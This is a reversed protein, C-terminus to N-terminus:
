NFDWQLWGSCLQGSDEQNWLTGLRGYAVVHGLFDWWGAHGRLICNLIKVMSYGHKSPEALDSEVWLFFWALTLLHRWCVMYTTAQEAQGKGHLTSLSVVSIFTPAAGAPSLYKQINKFQPDRLSKWVAPVSPRLCRLSGRPFEPFRWPWTLLLNEEQFFHHKRFSPWVGVFGQFPLLPSAYFM